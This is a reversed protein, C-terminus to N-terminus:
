GMALYQFAAALRVRSDGRKSALFGVEGLEAYREELRKITMGVRDAIGFYEFAGILLCKATTAIEAMGNNIIVPLGMLSEPEGRSLDGGWLYRGQGDKLKRLHVATLDTCMWATSPLGRYLHSLKGWLQVVEDAAIQTASQATVGLTAGVVVGQPQSSGTGVSFKAMEYAAFAQDFDPSLVERWVDYRSDALLEESCRSLRTPKYATFTVVGLTPQTEDYAVTEGVLVAATTAVVSPVELIKHHMTYSHFKTMRLPSKEYMARILDDSFEDPLLYGGNADTDEVLVAKTYEELHNKYSQDMRIAGMRIYQDIAKLHPQTDGHYSHTNFYPSQFDPTQFGATKIADAGAMFETARQALAYAAQDFGGDDWPGLAKMEGGYDGGDSSSPDYDGADYVNPDYQYEEGEGVEGEGEDGYYAEYADAEDYAGQDDAEDDAEIMQLLGAITGAVDEEAGDPIGAQFLAELTDVAEETSGTENPSYALWQELGAVDVAKTAYPMYAVLDALRAKLSARVAKRSGRGGPGGIGGAHRPAYRRKISLKRPKGKATVHWDSGFGVQQAYRADPTWTIPAAKFDYFRRPPPAPVPVPGPVWNLGQARAALASANPGHVPPHYLSRGQIVRSGYPNWKGKIDGDYGYM